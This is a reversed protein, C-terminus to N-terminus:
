CDLDDFDIYRKALTLTSCSDKKGDENRKMMM